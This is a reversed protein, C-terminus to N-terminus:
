RAAAIRDRATDWAPQTATDQDWFVFASDAMAPRLAAMAARHVPNRVFADLAPRDVWASLTWYEGRLPHAVLSVGLAGPSALAARRVRLAHRLMAATHRRSTLVFRSAMAVALSANGGAIAASDAVRVATPIAWPITAM